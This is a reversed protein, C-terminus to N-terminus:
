KSAEIWDPYLRFTLLPEPLERLYSKMTSVVAPADNKMETLAELRGANFANRMRKVKSVSGSIRFLGEEKVFPWLYEVCKEIVVSIKRGSSRLHEELPCGFM